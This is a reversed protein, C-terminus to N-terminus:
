LRRWNLPKKLRRNSARWFKNAPLKNKSLGAIAANFFASYRRSMISSLSPPINESTILVRMANVPPLDQDFELRFGTTAIFYAKSIRFGKIGHRELLLALMFTLADALLTARFVHGADFNKDSFIQEAPPFNPTEILLVVTSKATCKKHQNENM